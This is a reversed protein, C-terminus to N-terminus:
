GSTAELHLKGCVQEPRVGVEPEGETEVLWVRDSSIRTVKRIVVGGVQVFVIDGPQPGVPGIPVFTAWPTPLNLARMCAGFWRLKAPKGARLREIGQEVTAM